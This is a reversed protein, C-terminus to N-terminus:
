KVIKYSRILIQDKTCLRHPYQTGEKSDHIAAGHEPPDPLIQSHAFGHKHRGPPGSPGAPQPPEGGRRDPALQITEPSINRYFIEQQHMHHLGSLLGKMIGAAFPESASSSFVKIEGEERAFFFANM